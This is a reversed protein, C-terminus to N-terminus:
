QRKEWLCQSFHFFCGIIRKPKLVNKVSQILGPEFDINVILNEFHKASIQRKLLNMIYIFIENYLEESKSDALVCCFPFLMKEKPLVISLILLQQWNTPAKWFGDILWQCKNNKDLINL